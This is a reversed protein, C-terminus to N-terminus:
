NKFKRVIKKYNKKIKRILFFTQDKFIIPNSVKNEEFSLLNFISNIRKTHKESLGYARAFWTHYLFLKNNYLVSNTIQDNDMGADLFLIKKNKRRLWLYFCYYPEYLSNIDYKGNVNILDDDFFENKLIYNNKLVEKKNWIRKLEKFNIISFFTNIMYPNYTRHSIIGGDRIGCVMYNEAKMKKIIDFIVKADEFLVDEDAMILWEINESKLKEMMYFISDLGHMGNRGDIVYKQIDKPFFQSSKAYLDFNIVTSLM